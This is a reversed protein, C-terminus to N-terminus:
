GPAPTLLERVADTRAHALWGTWPDAEPEDELLGIYRIEHSRVSAAFNQYGSLVASWTGIGATVLWDIGALDSGNSETIVAQDVNVLWSRTTPRTGEGYAAIAITRAPGLLGSESLAAAPGLRPCIRGRVIEGMQDLLEEESPEDGQRDAEAAAAPHSGPEGAIAPTGGPPGPRLAPPGLSKRWNGDIEAYGLRTLIQNVVTRQGPHILDLPVRIGRGVSDASISRTAVAKHDGPGLIGSGSTLYCETIRPVHSVGIFSFIENVTCESDTVLDEYHIRLCRDPHAQEFDATRDTFECWYAALAAVSNGPFRTAFTDFGYGNLGWPTAELASDIVDMCHRYLCIFKAKPYVGLLPEVIDVTGLSKECWRTKGQALLYDAVINDVLSRIRASTSEPLASPGQDAAGGLIQCVSALQVCLRPINTEPPCALEPHADLILRLLTSGSRASTLVIVPEELNLGARDPGSGPGSKHIGDQAAQYTDDPPMSDANM